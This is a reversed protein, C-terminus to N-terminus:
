DLNRKFDGYQLENWGGASDPMAGAFLPAAVLSWTTGGYSLLKTKSHLYSNSESAAKKSIEV